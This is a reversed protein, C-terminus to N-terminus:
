QTVVLNLADNTRAFSLTCLCSLNSYDFHCSSGINTSNTLGGASFSLVGASCSIDSGSLSLVLSENGQLVAAEAANTLQSFEVSQETSHIVPLSGDFVWVSFGALSTIIGFVLIYEITEVV